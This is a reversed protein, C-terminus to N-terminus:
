NSINLHIKQKRGFHFLVVGGGVVGGGVVGGGVVGVDVVGGGVVSGGVLWVKKLRVVVLWVLM